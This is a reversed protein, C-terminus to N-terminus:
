PLAGELRRLEAPQWPELERHASPPRGALATALLQLPDGHSVLLVTAGELEAELDRLLSLLRAVVAKAAEVGFESHAPDDRDLAWVEDYRTSPEGELEGFWRERLRTDVRPPSLELVQAALEASQRARAFDSTVVVAGGLAARQLVATAQVQSRGRDSLGFGARATAPDSAILGAVNAESEGHRLGFYTNRLPISVPEPYRSEPPRRDGPQLLYFARDLTALDTYEARGQFASPIRSVASITVVNGRARAGIM